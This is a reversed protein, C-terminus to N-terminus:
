SEGKMSDMWKQSRRMAEDYKDTIDFSSPKAETQKPKGSDQERSLWGTIFAGVGRRTKKRNPHSELWGVMKRLEQLVDVSPYLGQWKDIEEQTVSKETGDNLPLAIVSDSPVLSTTSTNSEYESESVSQIVPVNANMQKCIIEPAQADSENPQPYKSRKARVTQHSNWTPLSLYPKGKVYYTSILGVTELKEIAKMVTAATLNEKLPFLSNKIMAPRGDFLGYDDCNVILRYFLVEEFWSLQNIDESSCINQKLIRNPM